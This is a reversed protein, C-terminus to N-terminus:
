MIFLELTDTVYCYVNRVLWDTLQSLCSQELHCTLNLDRTRPGMTAQPKSKEHYNSGLTCASWALTYLAEVADSRRVSVQGFCNVPGVGIDLPGLFSVRVVKMPFRPLIFSYNFVIIWDELPNDGFKSM